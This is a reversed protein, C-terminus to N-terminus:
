YKIKIKLSSKDLPVHFWYKHRQAKSHKKIFDKVGFGNLIREVNQTSYNLNPKDLVTNIQKAVVKVEEPSFQAISNVLMFERFKLAFLYPYHPNSHRM